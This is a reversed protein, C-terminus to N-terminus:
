SIIRYREVFCKQRFTTISAGGRIGLLKRYGFKQRVCFPVKVFIKPVSVFIKSLFVHYDRGGESQGEKKAKNKKTYWFKKQFM